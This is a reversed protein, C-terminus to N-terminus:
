AQIFLVEIKMCANLGKQDCLNDFLNISIVRQVKSLEHNRGQALVSYLFGIRPTLSAVREVKTKHELSDPVLFALLVDVLLPFETVAENVISDWTFQKLDEFDKTMLTSIKGHKRNKLIKHEKSLESLLEEKVLTKIEAFQLITNVLTKRSRTPLVSIVTSFEESSLVDCIEPQEFLKKHLDNNETTKLSSQSPKKKKRSCAKKRNFKESASSAYNHEQLPLEDDHKKNLKFESGRNEPKPNSTICKSQVTSKNNDAKGITGPTTSCTYSQFSPKPLIPTLLTVYGSDSSNSFSLRPTTPIVNLVSSDNEKDEIGSDPTNPFLETKARVEISESRRKTAKSLHESMCRKGGVLDLKENCKSRFESVQKDLSLLKRECNRCVVGELVDIEGYKLLLTSLNKKLGADSNIHRWTSGNPLDVIKCVTCINKGIKRPTM